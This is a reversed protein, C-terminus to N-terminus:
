ENEESNVVSLLDFEALTEPSCVALARLAATPAATITSPHWEGSAVHARVQALVAFRACRLRAKEAAARIVPALQAARAATLKSQPRYDPM